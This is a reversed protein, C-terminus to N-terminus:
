TYTLRCLSMIVLGCTSKAIVIRSVKLSSGSRRWIFVPLWEVISYTVFYVAAEPQIRYREM